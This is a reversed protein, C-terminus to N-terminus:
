EKRQGPMPAARQEREMIATQKKVEETNRDLADAMIDMGVGGGKPRDRERLYNTIQGRTQEDVLKFGTNKENEIVEDYTQLKDGFDAAMNLLGGAVYGKAENRKTRAAKIATFLNVPTAWKKERAVDASGKERRAALAAGLGPDDSIMNARQTAVNAADAGGIEAAYEHFLDISKRGEIEGTLGIYANVAEKRGLVKFLNGDQKKAREGIQALLDDLAGAGRKFKFGKKMSADLLSRVETASVNIDKDKRELVAHAGFAEGEPVGLQAALKAYETGALATASLNASTKGSAATLIDLQSEMTGGFNNQIKAAAKATEVMNVRDVFGTGAMKILTERDPKSLNSSKMQFILKAAESGSSAVGLQKALEAEERLEKLAAPNEAVQALEGMAGVSEIAREGTDRIKQNLETFAATVTGVIAGVSVMGGVYGVLMSPDFALSSKAAVVDLSAGTQTYEGMLRSTSSTLQPMMMLERNLQEHYRRKVDIKHLEADTLKRNGDTQRLLEVTLRTTERNLQEVSIKDADLANKSNVLSRAYREQATENDKAIRLAIRGMNQAERTTDKYANGTDKVSKTIQENDRFVKEAGRSGWQVEPM